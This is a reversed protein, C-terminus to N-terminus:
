ETLSVTGDSCVVKTAPVANNWGSGKEIANWEAATGNFTISTLATCWSFADDGISTVGNGITISTLSRCYYFVWDGISKVSDPIEISTLSDCSDFAEDGIRTVSDPITVSTLSSCHAFAKKGISTVSNPLEISKLRSCDSFASDAIVKTDEYITCSSINKLTPKILALYPNNKNGLYKANDYENFQLSDCYLFASIGISTVSDPINISILSSCGNFADDGINTVNDPIYVSTISKGEFSNDYINTVPLGNYTEAIIIDTAVGTYGIVEAYAGDASIDYLVDETPPITNNCVTCTAHGDFTHTEYDVNSTCSCTYEKWHHTTNVSWEDATIHPLTSNEIEKTDKKDCNIRNCIATETGNAQCTANDDSVYETFDHGLAPITEQSILVHRCKSCSTGATLGSKECTADVSEDIAYTHVCEETVSSDEISSNATSSNEGNGNFECASLGIASVGVTMIALLSILLKKM